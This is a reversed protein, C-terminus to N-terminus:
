QSRVIDGSRAEGAVLDAVIDNEKQPGTVKIEAVKLGARYLFLTQQLHPMEGTPFNLVVYRGVLNVFTVRATLSTDPTVIPSSVISSKVPTVPAHPSSTHGCGTWCGGALLLGLLLPAPKLHTPYFQKLRVM